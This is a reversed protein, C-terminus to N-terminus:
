YNNLSDNLSQVLLWLGAGVIAVTVPVGGVIYSIRRKALRNNYITEYERREFENIVSEPYTVKDSKKLFFIPLLISSTVSGFLYIPNDFIHGEIMNNNKIVLLQWFFSAPVLTTYMLWHGMPKLNADSIAINQISFLEKSEALPLNYKKFTELDTSVLIGNDFIKAGNSLELEQIDSINFSIKASPMTKFIIDGNLCKILKGTYVTKDKLILNDGLCVSILLLSIFKKVL